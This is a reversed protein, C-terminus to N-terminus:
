RREKKIKIINNQIMLKIAIGILIINIFTLIIYGITTGGTAIGIIVDASGMDNEGSINNNPTSNIDANGYENYADAIEARNNVVGTNESTMTKTLILKVEKEEGPNIPENALKKTYLENGSLYWDPNLESSFTLGSSLYDIINNAYGTIEGNNRVKITYELVVVSGVIQKRNIEVKEFTSDKYDYTKTGKSNQVSIKSIYKNLQLDFILKEKLGININSINDELNITDTVAYTKEEGNITINKLVVKSNISDDVGDKMYYTLEYENTDYEFLVIYKGNPIKTFAYEGKENTTTEIVIGDNDKLYDDTKVDYLKVKIGSLPTEENDKAGNLNQDLWAKGNIVNKINESTVKLIHTVEESTSKTMQFMRAEAKNTITKADIDETINKVRTIITMTAKDGAEVYIFQSINNSLKSIYTDTKATETTQLIVNGDVSISQIELYESVNDIVEINGSVNGTNEVVINYEVIDGERIYEKDQPSSLFIKSDVKELIDIWKNSRYTDGNSDKAIAMIDVQESNEVSNGQIKIWISENAKIEEINIKEPISDEMFFLDDADYLRTIKLNNSILQLDINAIDQDSMNEITVLYQVTGGSILSSEEDVINKITVRIPAPVIKNTLEASEISTGDYIAVAKNSIQKESTLDSKVRVEYTTTYTAGAALSQITEKVEAVDINEKYYSTEDYVYDEEPTVYVTGDPVNSKLEINKLEQAGNNKVTMTYKIVEGAKITDGSNITDNGVQASISTELKIETPTAFGIAISEIEVDTEVDTDYLVEYKAYSMADKPIPSPLQVTYSATYNSEVDLTDLKILFVKANPLLTTTWGNASNETNTTANANESYYITANQATISKLATQLTNAEESDSIVNGATPLKGFIRINKANVGTNNVLAIDFNIDKAIDNDSVQILQKDESVGNIGEINYTSSNHMTILGSPASIAIEKEIVGSGTTGGDYQTANENTYTMVIKDTKSPALKSLTIDLNLQLYLQTAETEPHSTQEGKLAIEIVKNTNDYKSSVTFDDAYLPTVGNMVVNEVSSPLQIKITPNKYLDYQVGDTILKVGLVVNENTTMTSLADKNVTFEAKSVTDQVELSSESSNEVVTQEVKDVSVTGTEINRTTLTEVTNLQATTYTNETTAKTHNIELIGPNVPKSTTILLENSPVQYNIIVDGNEDVESDKNILATTSGNEISINGDQGFIYLMKEKNIKTSIYKTNAVFETEATTFVDPTEKITIKEPIEANTIRLTTKTNYQASINSAIQGKYIGSSSIESQTTIIGNPESNEIVKTYTATYETESNHVIIESNTNIEVKSADVSEEYIFTVVLEDYCDKNWKIINNENKLIIEVKGNENKWDETTLETTGNTANTGLSVVEVKEPEKESLTPVDVSITTQKVPYQNDSLRSKVLLQVVRKNTGDISFVKNTIIDTELEAVASEDAQLDLSVTRTADISLGKYSTEMYKGTLKLNSAKVLMESTLTDGIAPEIDLEVVATTGANIQKLTVKNGDINAVLDSLINNKINFNSDQLELTADSLYGENKVTVEAYLKLNEAKISTQLTEVKEGKANKFYTSFEINKNNTASDSELAYSIINSGLVVFDTSMIMIIMLVALIKKIMKKEM